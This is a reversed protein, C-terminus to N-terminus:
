LKTKSNKRLQYQLTKKLHMVEKELILIRRELNECNCNKKDM